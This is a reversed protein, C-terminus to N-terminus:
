AAVPPRWVARSRGAVKWERGPDLWPPALLHPRGDIMRMTFESAHLMHHHASCLLAGNGIDTAGGQSWEEVHHAHCWSPPATCQPWVCGGDRAALALRQASSFYRETRGLDLIEGHLGLVVRRFGSDCALEGITAASVPESVGDLWGVGRGSELADLSVVALVTATSGMGTSRVGARLVGMLVDFQRQERSRPDRVHTVVDGEPTTITESGRALDEDSLFRPAADPAMSESLLAKLEAAEVPSAVGHFPVVGNREASLVFSRQQRLAEERPETGDPDLADRWVRAMIAVEDATVRRAEDTLAREAAEVNVPDAGNRAAQTLCRVVTTAADAGVAGEAVASAVHKFAPPVISGGLGSQPAIASGLRIRRAAEVQPVRTLQEVLHVGRRHGLRYALGASGLEFRSREEVEAAALVRAADVLRGASEVDSVFACLEEDTLRRPGEAAVAALLAIAQQLSDVAPSSM